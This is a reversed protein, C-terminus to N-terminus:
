DSKEHNCLFAGILLCGASFLITLLLSNVGTKPVFTAKRNTVKITSLLNNKIDVDMFGNLIEYGDLANLEKIYYLGALLNSITIKGDQDTTYEEILEYDQDYLGFTVGELPNLSQYDLKELHDSYDM